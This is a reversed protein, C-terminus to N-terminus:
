TTPGSLPAAGLPKDIITKAIVRPAPVNNIPSQQLGISGRAVRPEPIPDKFTVTRCKKKPEPAVNNLINSMKKLAAMEEKGQKNIQKRLALSLNGVAKIVQDAPTVTPQTIHRHQFFVTDSIRESRTKKCFKKHCRYHEVSTGLYWGSLSHPDWSKRRNTSEHMEVACGLPALPTKNYDFNGNVHQYASIAPNKNSQRLLNLTTGAPGM